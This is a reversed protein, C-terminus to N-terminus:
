TLGELERLKREIEEEVDLPEKGARVRRENGAIVHQRVETRLGEDQGLSGGANDSALIKQVEAEVDDPTEGRAEQRDARAQIMQRIDDEREAASTPPVYPRNEEDRPLGDLALPGKGFENWASGFLGSFVYIAIPIVLVAVLIIATGSEVALLM